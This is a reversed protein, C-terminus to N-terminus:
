IDEQLKVKRNRFEIVAMGELWKGATGECIM